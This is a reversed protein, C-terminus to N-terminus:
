RGSRGLLLLHKRGQGVLWTASLMGLAGLGGSIAWLGSADAVEPPPSLTIVIKGVHRVHTFQRFATIADVFKYSLHPLPEVHNSALMAALQRMSANLVPAPLFDIAVLRYQM